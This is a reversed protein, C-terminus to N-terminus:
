FKRIAYESTPNFIFPSLADRTECGESYSVSWVFLKCYTENLYIKILM